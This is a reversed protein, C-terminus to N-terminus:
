WQKRKKFNPDLRWGYRCAYKSIQETTTGVEKAVKQASMGNLYLSKAKEYDWTCRVGKRLDKKPEEKKQKPIPPVANLGRKARQYCPCPETLSFKRRPGDPGEPYTRLKGTNEFYNCVAFEGAMTLHECKWCPHESAKM